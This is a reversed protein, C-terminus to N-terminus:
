DQKIFWTYLTFPICLLVFLIVKIFPDSRKLEDLSLYFDRNIPKNYYNGRCYGNSIEKVVFYEHDLSNFFPDTHLHEGYIGHPDAYVSFGFRPFMYFKGEKINRYLLFDKQRQTFFEM